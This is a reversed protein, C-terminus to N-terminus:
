QFTHTHPPTPPINDNRASACMNSAVCHIPHPPNPPINVNRAGACMNSAVCHIPQTPSSWLEYQLHPCHKATVWLISIGFIRDVRALPVVLDLLLFDCTYVLRAIAHSFVATGFRQLFVAITYRHSFLFVGSFLPSAFRCCLTSRFAPKLCFGLLFILKWARWCYTPQNRLTNRKGNFFYGLFEEWQVDCSKPVPHVDWCAYPGTRRSTYTYTYTCTHTYM